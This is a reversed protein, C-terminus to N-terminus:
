SAEERSAIFSDVDAARYRVSRGIRVPVLTGDAAWRELTRVTVRFREALEMRTLLTTEDTSM